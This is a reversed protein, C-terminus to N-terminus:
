QIGLWRRARKGLPEPPPLPSVSQLAEVLEIGTQYRKDPNKELCKLIINELDPSIRAFRTPPPPPVEVHSKLVENRTGYFPKQGAVARYLVVGLGYLDARGDIEPAAQAQEPSVYGLTGYVGDLSEPEINNTDLSAGFDFLKARNNRTLMINSPKIDRHVIGQSHLYDLTNAVQIIIEIAAVESISKNRRLFEEFTEGEALEMAMYYQGSMVGTDISRIIGPHNLRYTTQFERRFGERVSKHAAAQQDLIKLAIPRNQYIARYVTAVGGEGLVGDIKYAGLQKPALQNQRGARYKQDVTNETVPVGIYGPAQAM